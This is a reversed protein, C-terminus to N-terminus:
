KDVGKKSGILVRSIDLSAQRAAPKQLREVQHTAATHGPTVGPTVAHISFIGPGLPGSFPIYKNAEKCYSSSKNLAFGEWNLGM